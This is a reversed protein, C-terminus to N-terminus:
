FPPHGINLFSKGGGPTQCLLNLYSGHMKGMTFNLIKKQGYCLPLIRISNNQCFLWLSNRLKGILDRGSFVGNARVCCWGVAVLHWVICGSSGVEEAWEGAQPWFIRRRWDCYNKKRPGYWCGNMSKGGLESNENGSLYVLRCEVLQLTGVRRYTPWTHACVFRFLRFLAVTEGYLLFFPDFNMILWFASTSQPGHLFMSVSQKITQRSTNSLWPSKM